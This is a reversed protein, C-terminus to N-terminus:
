EFKLYKVLDIKTAKFAKLGVVIFVLITLIIPTIIFPLIPMDIRYVFNDLWNQMFYYSIPILFVSAILVIKIFNKILQYMIEKISAGLTKRIAVEKLRQQITLTALAFLGLLSMLIVISTLILFLTKQKQHEKYTKAFQKDLFEYTFPYGQEINEKWYQEIFAMTTEIDNPKIKVQIRRFNYKQWKFTNWHIIFMPNIKTTLGDIFYDKVVGVITFKNESYGIKIKKGIPNDSIGLLKVATENLLLNSITDSAFEPSLARGKVIKIDVMNLYEYDIGNYHANISKELYHMDTTSSSNGGPIYYNSTVVDINPHKILEKKAVLYKKYVNETDNINLVIVQEGNFGLDKSMMYSVQAYMIMAGILFFGSIVFQVGLMTNRILVGKKSRSINGKLVEVSKFNSLYIAPVLGIFLSVFLAIVGVKLLVNGELLYIEKKMFTNFIPLVLEVLVAAFVFSIFGQFLTELVYQYILTGKSLGLTKKVGVEKARQSASATSLNIFNVCSIVILLLSLGLMILVLQYNGKGEPGANSAITHLRIDSLKEIIVKIGDKKEYEEVSVGDRKAGPVSRHKSFIANMKKAVEEPSANSNLKVFVNALFSGWHERPARAYQIVIAPEFYSKGTIEYITTVTYLKKAITIAKGIADREGFFQIAQKKSLAITNKAEKFKKVSGAIIKFPFFDFFQADGELIDECFITNNEIKIIESYYWSRSMYFDTVEPIEEKFVKGEYANSVGWIDGNTMKHIVKYIVDKNPNWANYSKENNFYLLVILLGAFGVTLGLINILLNLWNKQSNRFFIKFWIKNM